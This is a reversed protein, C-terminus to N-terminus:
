AYGGPIGRGPRGQFRPLTKWAAAAITAHEAPQVIWGIGVRQRRLIEAGPATNEVIGVITAWFLPLLRPTRGSKMVSNPIASAAPPFGSWFKVRLPNKRDPLDVFFAAAISGFIRSAGIRGSENQLETLGIFKGHGLHGSKKAIFLLFPRSRERRDM